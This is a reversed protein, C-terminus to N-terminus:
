KDRKQESEKGKAEREHYQRRKEEYEHIPVQAGDPLRMFYHRFAHDFRRHDHHHQYDPTVHLLTGMIKRISM